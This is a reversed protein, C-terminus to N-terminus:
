YNKKKTYGM